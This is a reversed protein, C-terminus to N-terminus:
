TSENYHRHDYAQLVYRGLGVRILRQLFRHTQRGGFVDDYSAYGFVWIHGVGAMVKKAMGLTMQGSIVEAFPETIQGAEIINEDVVAKVDWVPHPAAESYVIGTGVEVLIAPTKGYNKFRINAKPIHSFDVPNADVTPTNEYAFADHTCADFNHTIQVYLRAREAAVAADASKQAARNAERAIDLQTAIEKAQREGSEKTLRFQREGALYLFITAIWLGVTSFALVLTFFAVPDSTTREWFTKCEDGKQGTKQAAEYCEQKQKETPAYSDTWGWVLAWLPASFLAGLVMEPIRFRKLMWRGLSTPETAVGSILIRCCSLRAQDDGLALSDM